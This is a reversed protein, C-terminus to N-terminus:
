ITQKELWEGFKGQRFDRYAQKIEEQTNMVFPGKAAVPERLPRGAIVLCLLTETAHIQVESNDIRSQSLWLVDNKKGAMKNDGFIGAGKIIYIFGNYDAPFDQFVTHNAQLSIEVMTVPTYNKTQSKVKGSNGSFVKIRAGTEERVPAEENVIEQYRPEVMKYEAPLNIWLQLLHASGEDPAEEIHLIGKGATMWQVDGQKLEGENGHNDRHRLVGDIMYSVTEIGRHPHHDFAGKRMNDEAMVLFPDFEVWRDHPLVLIQKHLPSDIQPIGAWKKDIDRKLM